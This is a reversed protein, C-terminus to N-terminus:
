ISRVLDVIAELICVGAGVAVGVWYAGDKTRLDAALNAGIFVAAFAPVIYWIM